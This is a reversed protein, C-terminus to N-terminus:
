LDARVRVGVPGPEIEDATVLHVSGAGVQPFVQFRGSLGVHQPGGRVEQDREGAPRRRGACTTFRSSFSWRRHSTREAPCPELPWRQYAQAQSAVAEGRCQRSMRRWRAVPSSAKWYQWTGPPWSSVLVLSIR